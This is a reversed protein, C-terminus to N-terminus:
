PLYARTEHRLEHAANNITAVRLHNLNAKRHEWSSLDSREWPGAELIIAHLRTPPM